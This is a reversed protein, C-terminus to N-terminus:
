EAIHRFRLHSELGSNVLIIEDVIEAGAGKNARQFSGSADATDRSLIDLSDHPGTPLNRFFDPSEGFGRLCAGNEAM